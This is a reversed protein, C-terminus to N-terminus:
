DAQKLTKNALRVFKDLPKNLERFEDVANNHINMQDRKVEISYHLKYKSLSTKIIYDLEVLRVKNVKYEKFLNSVAIGFSCTGKKVGFAHEIIDSYMYGLREIDFNRVLTQITTKNSRKILQEIITKM